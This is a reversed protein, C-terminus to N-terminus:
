HWMIHGAVLALVIAAAPVIFVSAQLAMRPMPEQIQLSNAVIITGAFASTICGIWWILAYQKVAISLVAFAGSLLCLTAAFRRSTM